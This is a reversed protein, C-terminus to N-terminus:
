RDPRSMVAGLRALLDDRSSRVHLGALRGAAAGDVARLAAMIQRHEDSVIRLRMEGYGLSTRLAFVLRQQRQLVGLAERNRIGGNILLHFEGNADVMRAYDRAELAEDHRLQIQELLSIQLPSVIEAFRMTLYTELAEIVDYADCLTKEDVQRVSAGRFAELTVLGESQLAQLAERVPVPSADFRRAIDRLKLRAGAPLEGRLIEGRLRETIRQYSTPLAEADGQHDVARADQPAPM